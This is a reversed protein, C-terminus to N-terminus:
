EEEAASASVHEASRAVTYHRFVRELDARFPQFARLELGHSGAQLLAVRLARNDRARASWIVDEGRRELREVSLGDLPGLADLVEERSVEDPLSVEFGAGRAVEASLEDLTGDAVIEGADIIIIRDCVAAVEQMIHTSFLVTKERGIAKILDRIEIIQNPDLGTTPEDLIVVDPGHVIAQALGVRQRYGKSLEGVPRTYMKELGTMEIAERVRQRRQGKPVQRLEAVFMLYDHVLMEDYLPVNEPLYGIRARVQESETYVDFGAVKAEGSTAAMFCTLIKMTTSKGAGNPGLFGVIEGPAVSFSIGAVAEVEGYRKVLREVVISQTTADPAQINKNESGGSASAM